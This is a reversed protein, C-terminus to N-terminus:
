RLVRFSFRAFVRDRGWDTFEQGAPDVFTERRQTLLRAHYLGPCWRPLPGTTRQPRFDFNGNGAVHGVAHPGFRWTLRRRPPPATEGPTYTKNLFPHRCHGRPLPFASIRFANRYRGSRVRPTFKIAFTTYSRGHVPKVTVPVYASAPAALTAGLISAVGVAAGLHRSRTM